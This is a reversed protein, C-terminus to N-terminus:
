AADTAPSAGRSMNDQGRTGALVTDRIVDPDCGRRQLEQEYAVNLEVSQEYNVKVDDLEERLREVDAQHPASAAAGVRKKSMASRIALQQQLQSVVRDLKGMQDMAEQTRQEAAVAQRKARREEKQARQVALTLNDVVHQHQKDQTQLQSELRSVQERAAALDKLAAHRSKTAAALKAQTDRLTDHLQKLEYGSPDDVANETGVKTGPLNAPKQIGGDHSHSAKGQELEHVRKQLLEVKRLAREARAQQVKFAHETERLKNSLAVQEALKAPAHQEGLAKDSAERATESDSLMKELRRIQASKLAISRTSKNQLDTVQSRLKDCEKCTEAPRAREAAQQMLLQRKQGQKAEMEKTTADILEAKLQELASQLATEREKAVEVVHKEAALQDQLQQYESKPVSAQIIAELSAIHSELSSMRDQTAAHQSSLVNRDSDWQARESDM